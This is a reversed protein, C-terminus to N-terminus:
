RAVNGREPLGEQVADYPVTCCKGERAIGRSRVDYTVTCVNGREQLGEHVADYTATCCKGERAIGRSRCRITSHLMEGRQCDRMFLMMHQQAVNGREPLGEHVLMM